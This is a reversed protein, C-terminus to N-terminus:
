TRDSRPYHLVPYLLLPCRRALDIKRYINYLHDFIPRRCDYITDRSMTIHQIYRM